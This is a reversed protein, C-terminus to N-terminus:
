LKLPHAFFYAFFYLGLVFSIVALVVGLIIAIVGLKVDDYFVAIAGFLVALPGFGIPFVILSCFAFVIGLISCKRGTSLKKPPEDLPQTKDTSKKTLNREFDELSKREDYSEKVYLLVDVLVEDNNNIDINYKDKLLKILNPLNEYINNQYKQMFNDLIYLLNYEKLKDFLIQVKEDRKRVCSPCILRDKEKYRMTKFYSTSFYFKNCNECRVM